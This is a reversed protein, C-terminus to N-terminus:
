YSVDEKQKFVSLKYAPTPPQGFVFRSFLALEPDRRRSGWLNRRHHLHCDRQPLLLGSRLPPALLTFDDFHAARAGDPAGNVDCRRSSEPLCSHLAASTNLAPTQTKTTSRLGRRRPAKHWGGAPQWSSLWAAYAEAFALTPAADKRSGVKARGTAAQQSLRARSRVDRQTLGKEESRLEAELEPFSAFNFARSKV